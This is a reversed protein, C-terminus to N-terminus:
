FNSGAWEPAIYAANIWGAYGNTSTVRQWDVPTPPRNNRVRGEEVFVRDWQHLTTVRASSASPEFRIHLGVSAPAVVVYVPRNDRHTQVPSPAPTALRAATEPFEDSGNKQRRTVKQMEGFVKLIGETEWVWWENSTSGVSTARRDPATAQFDYSFLVRKENTKKTDLVQVASNLQIKTVPWRKFYSELDKRIFAKDVVGDNLYVVKDAYASMITDVDHQESARLAMMVFDTYTDKGSPVPSARLILATGAIEQSKRMAEQSKVPENMKSYSDALSRWFEADKPMLQTAKQFADAAEAYRSEDSYLKGLLAWAPGYDPSQKVAQKAADEAEAFRKLKALTSGLSTWGIGSTPELKLAHQYAQVADDLLNLREYVVGLKFLFADNEAYKAAIGNLLKLATAADDKQLANEAAVFDPDNLVVNKSNAAVTWFPAVETGANTQDLLQSIYAIPRAFNLAQANHIVFTAIGVVKGSEDVVPSGSSGPSVAATMQLWQDDKTADRHGSIIGDSVTGELGLPSGIVAIRSGVDPLSPEHSVTLSPVDKAEAQLLVLDKDLAAKLVGFISYTAGNELKASASDAGEIVHANTVLKGDPSVFFGTGRKLPKGTKDLVTVLAVAPRTTAALKKVDFLVIGQQVQTLVPTTNPNTIGAVPSASPTSSGTPSEPPAAASKVVTLLVAFGFSGISRMTAKKFQILRSM